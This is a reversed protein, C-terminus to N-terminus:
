QLGYLFALFFFGLLLFCFLCFIILFRSFISCIILFIGYFVSWIRCFLLFLFCHLFLLISCRFINTYILTLPPFLFFLFSSFFLSFQYFLKEILFFTTNKCVTKSLNLLKYFFYFLKLIIFFSM